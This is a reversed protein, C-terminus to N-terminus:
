KKAGFRKNLWVFAGTSILYIFGLGASTRLDATSKAECHFWRSVLIDSGVVLVLGSIVFVWPSLGKVIKRFYRAAEISTFVLLFPLMLSRWMECDNLM